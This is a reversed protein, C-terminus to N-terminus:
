SKQKKGKAKWVKMRGIESVCSLVTMVSGSTPSGFDCLTADTLVKYHVDQARNVSGEFVVKGPGSQERTEIYDVEM